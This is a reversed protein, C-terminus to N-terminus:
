DFFHEENPTDVKGELHITPSRTINMIFDLREKLSKVILKVDNTYDCWVTALPDFVRMVFGNDGNKFELMLNAKQSLARNIMESFTYEDNNRKSMILYKKPYLAKLDREKEKDNPVNVMWFIVDEEKASNMIDNLNSYYGGNHLTVDVSLSLFADSIKRILGSSKGGNDDFTGGVIFIKM